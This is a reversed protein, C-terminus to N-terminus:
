RDVGSPELHSGMKQRYRPVKPLASRIAAKFRDIDIGGSKSRLPGADYIQTAAVHMHVHDNEFFLFTADQTSLRDYTFRAM